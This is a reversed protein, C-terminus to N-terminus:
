NRNIIFRVVRGSDEFELSDALEQLLFVGRGRTDLLNEKKIPNKLDNYSFGDGEDSVRTTIKSDGIDITIHVEKKPDSKNGHEMANSVAESTLLMLTSATEEGLNHEDAIKQVFDPVKESDEFTSALTLRFKKNM